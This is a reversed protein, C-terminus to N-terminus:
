SQEDGTAEQLAIGGRVRGGDFLKWTAVPGLSWVRNGSDLLDDTAQYGFTGTLSFRPYLEGTAVGIRATEAALAREAARIDPRQRLLDAPIGVAVSEPPTPISDGRSLLETLESGYGGVLVGLRYVAATHSQRLGPLASETNAVNLQAQSVDLAPALKADFLDQTLKLTELQTRVNENTVRMREELVRIEVYTGECRRSCCSWCM